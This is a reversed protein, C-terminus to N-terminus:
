PILELDMRGSRSRIPGDQQSQVTPRNARGPLLARLPRWGDFTRVRVSSRNELFPRTGASGPDARPLVGAVGLWRRRPSCQQVGRAPGLLAIAEAMAEAM